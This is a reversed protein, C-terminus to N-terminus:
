DALHIYVLSRVTPLERILALGNNDMLHAPMTIIWEKMSIVGQDLDDDAIDSGTTAVVCKINRYYYHLDDVIRRPNSTFNRFDSDGCLIPFTKAIDNTKEDLLEVGICDFINYAVYEFPYNRQMEIHWALGDLHAVEPVALKGIGIHKNLIADLSYSPEMGKAVRIRKYLCAADIFYFSAPCDITHWRDAWHLPMIKGSQTVKQRKGENYKFYRYQKPVIPDSFVEGLDYGEKTLTSIIIPLDFNINWVTIFDPKWEHARKFVAACCEGASDCVVFEVNLGREAVVDAMLKNLMYTSNRIPDSSKPIFSTNIATIVRGKFSLTILIIESTGRVVDTEIDLVAVTASPSYLDPYKQEYDKRILSTTEIDAGYIYPSKALQRYRPNVAPRGYLARSISDVLKFKPSEFRQLRDESEYEKKDQHNRYGERTIWFPQKYNEFLRMKPFRTGDKLHVYEKAVHLDSRGDHALCYTVHRCELGLVEDPTVARPAVIEAM